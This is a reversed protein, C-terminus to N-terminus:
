APADHGGELWLRSCGERERHTSFSASGRFTAGILPDPQSTKSRSPAATSRGTPGSGSRRASSGGRRAARGGPGQPADPRVHGRLPVRHRRRGRRHERRARVDGLLPLRGALSSLTLRFGLQGGHRHGRGVAPALVALGPGWGCRPGWRTLAQSFTFGDERPEVQSGVLEADGPCACSEVSDTSSTLEFSWAPAPPPTPEPLNRRHPSRAPRPLPRWPRSSRRSSPRARPSSWRRSPRSRTRAGGIGEPSSGERAHHCPAPGLRVPRM